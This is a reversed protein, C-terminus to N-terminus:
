ICIGINDIYFDDAFVDNSKENFIGSRENNEIIIVGFFLKM